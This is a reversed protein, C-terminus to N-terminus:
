ALWSAAISLRQGDVIFSVLTWDCLCVSLSLMGHSFFDCLSKWIVANKTFFFAHLLRFVGVGLIKPDKIGNISGFAEDCTVINM